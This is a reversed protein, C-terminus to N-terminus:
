NLDKDPWFRSGTASAAVRWGKTTLVFVARGDRFEIEVESKEDGVMSGANASADFGQTIFRDFAADDKFFIVLQSEFGGIGLALGVGATSMNMYVRRENGQDWAVGRGAGGSFGVLTVKRVDFVAYGVAQEYLDVAEPREQFLRTLSRDATADLRARTKSPDDDSAFLEKTSNVSGEVAGAVNSAGEGVAQAGKQIGGIIKDGLSQAAAANTSLYILACILTLKM